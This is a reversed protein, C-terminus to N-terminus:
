CGSLKQFTTWYDSIQEATEYLSNELWTLRDETLDRDVYWINNAVELTEGRFPNGKREIICVEMKDPWYGFKQHIAMAYVDLQWYDDEYYKKKSTKSATKYDRIWNIERGDQDLNDDDIFGKIFFGEMELEFYRQFTGLPEITDLVKLESDSLDKKGKGTTIYDEVMNGFAAWGMDPWPNLGFFYQVFYEYMGADKMNFSKAANWLQWQSYSLYSKGDKQKPLNIKAM